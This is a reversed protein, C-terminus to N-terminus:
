LDFLDARIRPKYTRRDLEEIKQYIENSVIEKMQHSLIIDIVAIENKVTRRKVRCIKLEKSAKYGQAANLNQFEIYHEIDIKEDELDRLQKELLEKRKTADKVLGNMDNIKDLWIRINESIMVKETNNVLDNESVQKVSQPPSDYKEVKFICKLAKPLSNQYIGNAQKKTFLDAMAESSTPVFKGSRNQYIFRTGDTIVYQSM